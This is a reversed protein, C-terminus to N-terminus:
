FGVPIFAKLALPGLVQLASAAGSLLASGAGNGKKPKAEPANIAESARRLDQALIMDGMAGYLDSAYALDQAALEKKGQEGRTIGRALWSIAADPNRRIAENFWQEAEPFRGLQAAQTGANHLESYSLLTPNVGKAGQWHATALGSADLEAGSLDAGRLDTGHMRAGRLNAGRLSAGHLSAFSLDSGSLNAGDLQAGSLNAGELKARQLDARALQAQALDARILDCGGCRGQDLLQVVATPMGHAAFPLIWACAALRALALPNRMVPKLGVQELAGAM